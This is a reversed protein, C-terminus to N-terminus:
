LEASATWHVACVQGNNVDNNTGYSLISFGSDSQSYVAIGSVDAGLALNRVLANTNSPNYTTVTANSRMVVALRIPM